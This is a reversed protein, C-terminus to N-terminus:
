IRRIETNKPNKQSSYGLKCRCIRIASLKYIYSSSSCRFIFKRVSCRKVRRCLGLFVLGFALFEYGIYDPGKRISKQWIDNVKSYCINLFYVIIFLIRVQTNSVAYICLPSISAIDPCVKLLM